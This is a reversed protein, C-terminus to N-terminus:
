TLRWYIFRQVASPRRHRGHGRDAWVVTVLATVTGGALLAWLLVLLQLGLPLASVPVGRLAVV